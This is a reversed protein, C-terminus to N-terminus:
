LAECRPASPSRSRMHPRSARGRFSGSGKRGERNTNKIVARITDGTTTFNETMGSLFLPIDAEKRQTAYSANGPARRRMFAHLAPVDVSFGRPFGSLTMSIEEDHSGGEISLRLHEGYCKM